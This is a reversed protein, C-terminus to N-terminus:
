DNNKEGILTNIIYTAVASPSWKELYLEHIRNPNTKNLNNVDYEFQKWDIKDIPEYGMDITEKVEDETFPLYWKCHLKDTVVATGVAFSDIFRSPISLTFGSVNFNYMFKSVHSEFKDLPVVLDRNIHDESDANGDNIIRCDFGSKKNLIEAIIARKINPHCIKNGFWGVLDYEFGFDPEDIEKSPLPGKSNVFYCMGMKKKTTHYSEIYHEYGSKLEYYSNGVSLERPGLMLPKIKDRYNNFDKIEKRYKNTKLKRIKPELDESDIWPLDIENTLHFVDENIDIPYQIKFYYDKNKLREYDFMYPTDACDITFTKKTGDPLILYADFYYSDRVIKYYIRRIFKQIRQNKFYFSSRCIIDTDIKLDITNKDNLEYFGLVFWQFYHWRRDKKIVLKPLRSVIKGEM